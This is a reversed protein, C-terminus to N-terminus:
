MEPLDGCSRPFSLGGRTHPKGIGLIERLSTPTIAAAEGSMMYSESARGGKLLFLLRAYKYGLHKSSVCHPSHLHTNLPGSVLHGTM